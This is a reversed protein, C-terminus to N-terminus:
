GPYGRHPGGPVGWYALRILQAETLDPHSWALRHARNIVQQWEPTEARRSALPHNWWHYARAVLGAARRIM